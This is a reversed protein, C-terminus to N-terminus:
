WAKYYISENKGGIVQKCAEYYKNLGLYRNNWPEKKGKLSYTYIWYNHFKEEDEITYKEKFSMVSDYLSIAPRGEWYITDLRLYEYKNLGRCYEITDLLIKKGFGKNRYQPLVGYWDLWITEKDFDATFIGTVGISENNYLVIWSINDINDSQSKDKFNQYDPEDPWIQKQISYATEFNDKNVKVYKILKVDMSDGYINYCM